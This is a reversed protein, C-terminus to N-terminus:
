GLSDWLKGFVMRGGDWSAPLFQKFLAMFFGVNCVCIQLEDIQPRFLQGVEIWANREDKNTELGMNSWRMLNVTDDPNGPVCSLCGGPAHTCYAWVVLAAFVTAIHSIPPISHSINCQSQFSARIAQHATLIDVAHCLSRRADSTSAWKKVLLQRHLRTSTQLDALEEIEDLNQDRAHQSLLSTDAILQLSVVHHHIITSLLLSKVRTATNRTCERTTATPEEFGNYYKFPLIPEEGFAIGEGVPQNVMAELYAKCVNLQRNLANIEIRIDPSESRLLRRHQNSQWINSSLNALMM